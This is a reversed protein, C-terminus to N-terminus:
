PGCFRSFALSFEQCYRSVVAFSRWDIQSGNSNRTLLDSVVLCPKMYSPIHNNKWTLIVLYTFSHLWARRCGRAEALYCLIDNPASHKRQQSSFPNLPCILFVYGSIILYKPIIILPYPYLFFPLIVGTSLNNNAWKQGCVLMHANARWEPKCALLFQKCYRRNLKFEVELTTQPEVPRRCDGAKKGRSSSGGCLAQEQNLCCIYVVLIHQKSKSVHSFHVWKHM